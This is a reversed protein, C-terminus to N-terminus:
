FSLLRQRAMFSANVTRGVHRVVRAASDGCSRTSEGGSYHQWDAVEEWMATQPLVLNATFKRTLNFGTHKTCPAHGTCQHQQGPPCADQPWYKRFSPSAVQMERGKRCERSKRASVHGAKEPSSTAYWENPASKPVLQQDNYIKEFLWANDSDQFRSVQPGHIPRPDAYMLIKTSTPAKNIAKSVTQAFVKLNPDASADQKEDKPDVLQQLTDLSHLLRSLLRSIIRKLM